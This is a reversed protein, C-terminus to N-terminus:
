VMEEPGELENQVCVQTGVITIIKFRAPVTIDLRESAITM